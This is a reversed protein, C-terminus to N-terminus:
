GAPVTSPGAPYRGASPPVSDPVITRSPEGGSCTGPAVAPCIRIDSLLPFKVGCVSVAVFAVAISPTVTVPVTAVPRVMMTVPEPVADHCSGRCTSVVLLSM